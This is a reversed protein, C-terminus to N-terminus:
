AAGVGAGGAGGGMGGSAGGGAGAAVAGGAAAAAASCSTHTLVEPQVGLLPLQTGHLAKLPPLTLLGRVRFHQPQTSFDIQM